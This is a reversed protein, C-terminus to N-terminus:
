SVKGFDCLETASNSGSVLDVQSWQWSRLVVYKDGMTQLAGDWIGDYWCLAMPLSWFRSLIWSCMLLFVNEIM